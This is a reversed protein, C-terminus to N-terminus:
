NRTERRKRYCDQLQLCNMHAVMCVLFVGTDVDTTSSVGFRSLAIYRVSTFILSALVGMLM